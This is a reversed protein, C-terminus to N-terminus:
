RNGYFFQRCYFLKDAIKDANRRYFTGGIPITLRHGKESTFYLFCGIERRFHNRATHACLSSFPFARTLLIDAYFGTCDPAPNPNNTQKSVAAPGNQTNWRMCKECLM